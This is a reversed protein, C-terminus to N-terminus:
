SWFACPAIGPLFRRRGRNASDAERWDYLFFIRRTIALGHIVHPNQHGLHSQNPYGHAPRHKLVILEGTLNRKQIAFGDMGATGSATFYDSSTLDQGDHARFTRAVEKTKGYCLFYLAWSTSNGIINPSLGRYFAAIGGERRSIDRIVRLSGGIRSSSSRDVSIAPSPINAM